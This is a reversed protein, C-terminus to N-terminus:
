QNQGRRKSRIKKTLAQFHHKGPSTRKKWPAVFAPGGLWNLSAHKTLM